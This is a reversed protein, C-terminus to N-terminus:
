GRKPRAPTAARLVAKPVVKGATDAAASVAHGLTRRARGVLKGVSLGTSGDAAMEDDDSREGPLPL